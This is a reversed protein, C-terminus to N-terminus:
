VGWRKRRDEYLRAIETVSLTRNWIQVEYIKGVFPYIAYNGINMYQTDNTNTSLATITTGDTAVQVGDVFIRIRGNIGDYTASLLHIVGVTPKDFKVLKTDTGDSVAFTLTGGAEPYGFLFWRAADSGWCSVYGQWNATYNTINIVVNLSMERLGRVQLPPIIYDDVGDFATGNGRDGGTAGGITVGGNPTGDTTGSLDALNALKGTIPNKTRMDSAFIISPDLENNLPYKLLYGSAYRKFGENKNYNARNYHYHALKDSTM